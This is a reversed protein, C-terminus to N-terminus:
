SWGFSINNHGKRAEEQVYPEKYFVFFLVGGMICICAISSIAYTMNYQVTLFPNVSRVDRWWDTYGSAKIGMALGHNEKRVM